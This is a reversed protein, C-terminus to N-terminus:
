GGVSRLLSTLSPTGSSVREAALAVVDLERRNPVTVVPHGNPWVTWVAGPVSAVIASGLYLGIENGLQPAIRPDGRWTDIRDEVLAVGVADYGLVVGDAALWEALREHRSLLETLEEPNEEFGATGFVGVGRAMGHKAMWARRLGMLRM